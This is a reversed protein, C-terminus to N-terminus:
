GSAVLWRALAAQAPHASVRAGREAGREAAPDALCRITQGEVQPFDRAGADTGPTPRSVCHPGATGTVRGCVIVRSDRGPHWKHSSALDIMSVTAVSSPTGHLSRSM